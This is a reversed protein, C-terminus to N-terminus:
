VFMAQITEYRFLRICVSLTRGHKGGDYPSFACRVAISMHSRPCKDLRKVFIFCNSRQQVHGASLLGGYGKVQNGALNVFVSGSLRLLAPM